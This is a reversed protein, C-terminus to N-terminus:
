QSLKLSFVFSIKGLFPTILSNARQNKPPAKFSTTGKVPTQPKGWFFFPVQLIAICNSGKKSSQARELAKLKFFFEWKDVYSPTLQAKCAIWLPVTKLIWNPMTKAIPPLFLTQKMRRLCIARGGKSPGVFFFFFFCIAWNLKEL